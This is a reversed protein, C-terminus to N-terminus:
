AGLKILIPQIPRYKKYWIVDQTYHKGIRLLGIM